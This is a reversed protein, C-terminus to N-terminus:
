TWGPLDQSLTEQYLIHPIVTGKLIMIASVM